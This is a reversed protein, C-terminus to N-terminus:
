RPDSMGAQPFHHGITPKEHGENWLLLSLLTRSIMSDHVRFSSTECGTDIQKQAAGPAIMCDQYGISSGTVDM